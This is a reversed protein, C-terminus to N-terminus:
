AGERSQKKIEPHTDWFMQRAAAITVAPNSKRYNDVWRDRQEAPSGTEGTDRGVESLIKTLDQRALAATLATELVAFDDPNSDALRGLVPGVTEASGLLIEYPKAKAVWESHRRKAVEEALQAIATDREARAKAVEEREEALRKEIDEAEVVEVEAGAEDAKGVTEVLEAATEAGETEAITITEGDMLVGEPDTGGIDPTNKRRKWFLLSAPPNDPEDVAGVSDIDSIKLRRRM